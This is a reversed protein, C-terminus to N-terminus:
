KLTMVWTETKTPVPNDKLNSSKANQSGLPFSEKQRFGKTTPTEDESTGYPVLAAPPALTLPEMVIPDM